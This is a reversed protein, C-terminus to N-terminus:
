KANEEEAAKRLVAAAEKDWAEKMKPVSWEIFSSSIRYSLAGMLAGEKVDHCELCSKKAYMAGVTYIAKGSKKVSEEPLDKPAPNRPNELELVVDRGKRLEAVARKEFDSLARKKNNEGDAWAKGENTMLLKYYSYANPEKGLLGILSIQEFAGDYFKVFGHHMVKLFPARMEGFQDNIRTFAHYNIQHFQTMFIVADRSPPTENQLNSVAVSLKRPTPADAKPADGGFLACSIFCVLELGCTRRQLM